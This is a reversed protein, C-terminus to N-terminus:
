RLVKLIKDMENRIVVINAPRNTFVEEPYNKIFWECVSKLTGDIKDFSDGDLVWELIEVQVECRDFTYDSTTNSWEEKLETIKERIEAVSKM